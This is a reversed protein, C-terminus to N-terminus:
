LNLKLPFGAVKVAEVWVAQNATHGDKVKHQGAWPPCPHGRRSGSIGYRVAYMYITIYVMINIIVWWVCRSAYTPSTAYICKKTVVLMFIITHWDTKELAGQEDPWAKSWPSPSLRDRKTIPGATGRVKLRIMRPPMLTHRPSDMAASCWCGVRDGPPRWATFLM